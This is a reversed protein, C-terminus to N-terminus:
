LEGRLKELSELLIRMEPTSIKTDGKRLRKLRDMTDRGKIKFLMDRYEAQESSSQSHVGLRHCRFCLFVGNDLNWRLSNAGRGRGEIHHADRGKSGCVECIGGVRDKIIARWIKDLKHTLRKRETLKGRKKREKFHTIRM